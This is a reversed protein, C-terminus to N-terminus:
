RSSVRAAFETTLTNIGHQFIAVGVERDTAFFEKGTPTRSFALIANIEEVSVEAYDLMILIMMGPEAAQEIVPMVMDIYEEADAPELLPALLAALVKRVEVMSHTAYTTNLLEQYLAYRDPNQEALAALEKIYGDYQETAYGDNTLEAARMSKGLDSQMFALMAEIAEPSLTGSYIDRTLARVAKADYALEAAARWDAVYQQPYDPIADPFGAVYDVYIRALGDIDRIDLLREIADGANAAPTTISLMAALVIGKTAALDPRFFLQM